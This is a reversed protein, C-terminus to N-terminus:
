MGHRKVDAVTVSGFLGHHEDAPGAAFFLTDAAGGIATGSGFALGWLGPIRLPRRRADSLLGHFAGQDPDFASIRGDGFNGILLDGGLEGFEAPALAVGWPADLTGNTALRRLFRGETDFVDVIGLGRHRVPDVRRRDQKAYTVILQAGVAQIGFPAFGPPLDPDAFSGALTAPAFSADFVDIAGRHFDTAYLFNGRANAALALGKYVAGAASNDVELVAHTLDVDFNWGSITGDETAFLFFSTTSPSGKVVPFDGTGNFVVGTPAAISGGAAPPIIVVLPDPGFPAAPHGTGDYLTSVGSTNDAAWLFTPQAVALGWPNVLNPDTVAAAGPVDSVLNTQRYGAAESQRAAAAVCSAAILVGGIRSRFTRM